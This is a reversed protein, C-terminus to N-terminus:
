GVGISLFKLVELPTWHLARLLLTYFLDNLGLCTIPIGGCARVFLMGLVFFVKHLLALVGTAIRHPLCVKVELHETHRLCCYARLFNFVVVEEPFVVLRIHVVALLLPVAPIPVLLSVVVSVLIVILVFHRVTVLVIADLFRILVTIRYRPYIWRVISLFFAIIWWLFTAMKNIFCISFISKLEKFFRNVRVDFLIMNIFVCTFLRSSTLFLLYLRNTLWIVKLRIVHFYRCM